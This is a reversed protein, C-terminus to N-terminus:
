IDKLVIKQFNECWMLKTYLDYLLLHFYKGFNVNSGQQCKLDENEFSRFIIM